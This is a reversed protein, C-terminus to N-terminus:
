KSAEKIKAYLEVEDGPAFRRHHYVINGKKDYVFVQPLGNLEGEMVMGFERNYDHYAEFQWGGTKARKVFNEANQPFDTSIAVIRFDTEKQWAEYNAKYADLEMRCPGCTTLWFMLVLPKGETKLVENSNLIRGMTDKLAIDFPFTKNIQTAQRFTTPPTEWVKYKHFMGISDPPPTLPATKVATQAVITLVFGLALTTSIIKKV